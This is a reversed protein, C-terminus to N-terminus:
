AAAREFTADVGCELKAILLAEVRESLHDLRRLLLRERRREAELRALADQNYLVQPRATGAIRRHERQLSRVPVRRPRGHARWQRDLRKPTSSLRAKHGRRRHRLCLAACWWNRIRLRRRPRWRRRDIGAMGVALRRTVRRSDGEARQGREPVRLACEDLRGVSGVERPPGVVRLWGGRPAHREACRGPDDPPHAAAPASSAM